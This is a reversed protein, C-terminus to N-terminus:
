KKEGKIFDEANQKAYEHSNNLLDKIITKAYELDTKLRENEQVQMTEKEIIYENYRPKPTVMVVKWGDKLYSNLVECNEKGYPDNFKAECTRVCYQKTM